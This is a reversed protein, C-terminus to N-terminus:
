RKVDQAASSINPSNPFNKSHKKFKYHNSVQLKKIYLSTRNKRHFIISRKKVLFEILSKKAAIIKGPVFLVDVVLCIRGESWEYPYRPFTGYELLQLATEKNVSAWAIYGLEIGSDNTLINISTNEASYRLGILEQRNVGLGAEIRLSIASVLQQNRTATLEEIVM